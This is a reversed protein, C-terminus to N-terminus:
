PGEPDCAEAPSFTMTYIQKRGSQDGAFVLRAGDHSMAPGTESGDFNTIRKACPPGETNVSWIDFESNNAGTSTARNSAFLIDRGNPHWIPSVNLASVYTLQRLKSGAKLELTFIHSGTGEPSKRVFAIRKGDPSFSPSGDDDFGPALARLDGGDTRMIMIQTRENQTTRTSAFVIRKGAADFRAEGDYGQSSTLRKIESGDPKALYLETPSLTPLPRTFRGSPPFRTFLGKRIQADEKLEDTESAYLVRTGDPHYSPSSDDGDHYSIRREIRTKLNLEYIQANKHGPRNRSLFLVRFGDPSFV